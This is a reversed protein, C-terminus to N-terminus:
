LCCLLCLSNKSNCCMLCFARPRQQLYQNEHKTCQICSPFVFLDFHNCTAQLNDMAQMEYVENQSGQPKLWCNFYVLIPCYRGQHQGNIHLYSSHNSPLCSPEETRSDPIAPYQENKQSVLKQEACLAPSLACLGLSSARTWPYLGEKSQTMGMNESALHDSCFTCPRSSDRAGLLNVRWCIKIQPQNREATYLWRRWLCEKSLIELHSAPSFPEAADTVTPSSGGM